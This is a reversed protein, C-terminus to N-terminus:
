SDSLDDEDSDYSDDEDEGDEIDADSEAWYRITWYLRRCVEDEPVELDHCTEEM